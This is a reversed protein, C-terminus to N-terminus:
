DAAANRMREALREARAPTQSHWRSDLMEEAATEYDEAEIAAWMNRFGGVGTVGLQYAMHIIIMAVEIPRDDLVPHNALIEAAIGPVRHSVVMKSEYESIWTLGHGFTDNGLHDQYVESRFGEEECIADIEAQMIAKVDTM